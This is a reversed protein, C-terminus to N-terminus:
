TTSVFFNQPEIWCVVSLEIEVIGCQEWCPRHAKLAEITRFLPMKGELDSVDKMDHQLDVGCCYLKMIGGILGYDSGSTGM